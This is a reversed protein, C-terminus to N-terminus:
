LRNNSILGNVDLILSITGDGMITCGAIGKIRGAIKSINAPIPKIVVQQEDVLRDVFLCAKGMECEVMVMIGKSFDTIETPVNFARHMRIVRYCEGRILVMEMGEPSIITKHLRPEFSERINLIPIIYPEAGVVVKMGNVIALTLPIHMIFKTGKGKESEIYISGGINEINQHVVDMGVGRGSFETVTSNTSFGPTLIFSYAEKDSIEAETKTTLGKEIAKKVIAQKNLGRGDDSVTVIIDGGTNRATLTITGVPSKGKAIREEKNELGHDMCNRVLHMLPDALNDNINKDVETKEGIMVFKAEKGIKKGMDRVIRQMKLFSSSVPVMRISMVVDQLENTLKRLLRAQKEFGELHLKAIEPNKIVMSETTVIEGVLNMLKDIRNVDVSIFNQKVHKELALDSRAGGTSAAANADSSLEGAKQVTFGSFEARQEDVERFEVSRVLITNNLMNELTSPDVKSVITLTFGNAAIEGDCSVDINEPVHSISSCLGKLSNVIGFARVTEMGCDDEFEIRAQYNRDEQAFAISDALPAIPAPVDDPMVIMVPEAKADALPQKGSILQILREKRGYLEDVEGDPLLGDQIKVLENKFFDISELILDLIDEWFDVEITNSRIVDFLDEVGHALKTMNNYEMMASSGKLTHMVRFVEDIQAKTLAAHKERTLLTTEIQELLQMNEYIFVELLPDMSSM